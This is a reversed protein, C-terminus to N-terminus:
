AAQRYQSKEGFTEKVANTVQKWKRDNNEGKKGPVYILVIGDKLRLKVGPVRLQLLENKKRRFRGPRIGIIGNSQYTLMKRTFYSRTWPLTYKKRQLFYHQGTEVDKLALGTGRIMAADKELEDYIRGFDEKGFRHGACSPTTRIGKEHLFTVLERLPADVSGAFDENTIVNRTKKKMFYYWGPKRMSQLWAGTHFEEHPIFAATIRKVKKV